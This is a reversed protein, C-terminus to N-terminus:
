TTRLEQNVAQRAYFVRGDAVISLGCKQNQLWLM